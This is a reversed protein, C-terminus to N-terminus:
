RGGDEFAARPADLRATAGVGDGGSALEWLWREVAEPDLRTEAALFRVERPGIPGAARGLVRRLYSRRVADLDWETIGLDAPTRPIAIVAGPRDESRDGRRVDVGMRRAFALQANPHKGAATYETEQVVVIADQELEQAIVFAAALSTNGAPGRELGELRALAETIYFVEGQTVTVYRDLYRLARAASRSVDVRDPDALFPV